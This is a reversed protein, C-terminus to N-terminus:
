PAQRSPRRTVRPARARRRCDRRGVRSDRRRGRGRAHHAAAARHRLLAGAPPRPRGPGIRRPADADAIAPVAMYDAKERVRVNVLVQPYTVLAAALDALEQGTAAMIRLVNLATVIGDGTFLHDAFIVHGSQEGGLALGRRVMEEMVYKDGVACRVMEIGRERLAMELGINSMVTAVVAHGPLRGERQLHAAAMLLIADGDVVRGAHDVLLARDGDGDFAIGLRAGARRRRGGAGAPADVRLGPQHQARRAGRWHGDVAFGLSSFFAPALAATAGNACDIVVRSGALPGATDLIQRLHDLYPGSLDRREVVPQAAPPCRGRRTPWSASSRRRSRGRHVERGIGLVGQHRQGRVPQALGLDRRGRRLGRHPGPLRHGADAGRGASVVTAGEAVLGRALEEEIWAGSERTDRGIVVRAGPVAAARAHEHGACTSRALAAGVRAVTTRDLPAQGAKGRIGDTGFLKM